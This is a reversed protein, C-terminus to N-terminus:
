LYLIESRIDMTYVFSNREKVYNQTDNEIEKLFYL